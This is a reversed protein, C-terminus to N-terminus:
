IDTTLTAGAWRVVSMEARRRPRRGVRLPFGDAYLPRLPCFPRGPGHHRLNRTRVRHTEKPSFLTKAILLSRLPWRCANSGDQAIQEAGPPARAPTARTGDGATSLVPWGAPHCAGLGTRYLDKKRRVSPPAQRRFDCLKVSQPEGLCARPQHPAAAGRRQGQADDQSVLQLSGVPYRGGAPLRYGTLTGYAQRLSSAGPRM